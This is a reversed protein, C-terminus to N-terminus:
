IVFLRLRLVGFILKVILFCDESVFIFSGCGMLRSKIYVNEKIFDMLFVVWNVLIKERFFFIM